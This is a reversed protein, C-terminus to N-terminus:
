GAWTSQGKYIQRWLSFVTRAPAAARGVDCATEIVQFIRAIDEAVPSAPDKTFWKPPLHDAAIGTCTKGDVEVDAQLFLHPLATLTTIGYRFPMRTHLNVVSRRTDLLRIAM